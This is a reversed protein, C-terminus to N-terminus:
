DDGSHEAKSGRYILFAAVLLLGGGVAAELTRGRLYLMALSVGAVVLVLLAFITSTFITSLLSGLSRSSRSSAASDTKPEKATM